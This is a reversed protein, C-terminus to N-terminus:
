RLWWDKTGSNKTFTDLVEVRAHKGEGLVRELIVCFGGSQDAVWDTRRRYFLRVIEERDAAYHVNLRDAEADSLATTAVVKANSRLDGGIVRINYTVRANM